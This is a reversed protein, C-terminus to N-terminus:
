PNLVVKGTNKRAHLHRHADAVEEFRFVRDVRPRIAGRGYLELLAALEASLLEPEGWLHGLNIGGVTRNDNMLGIPTFFPVRVLASLARPVSRREGSALNAFGYAVLRGAPRLLRYGKRWSEGGLPDLVVDVGKGDTLRLVEEAYDRTRYDIPHTCGAASLWAHKEASSTGFTEVGPVTRCLQLAALGVGGGAMHVLVRDGPRLAAVRFLAHYATLYNVPLAAGEEFSMGDPMPMVQAQPVAVVEAQGGFRTLALVRAGGAFAAGPGVEEVEGSVEYGLVCPPRPADPYFGLRAMVDAFNLGASRVRVRVEGPGPRPEPEDKVRMVEPGGHRTMVIARM